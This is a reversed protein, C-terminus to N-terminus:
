TLHLGGADVSWDITNHKWLTPPYNFYKVIVGGDDEVLIEQIITKLYENTLEEYQTSNLQFQKEVIQILDNEDVIRRSCFSKGKKSYGGCIYVKRKRDMKGKYSYNCQGCKILSKFLYNSM